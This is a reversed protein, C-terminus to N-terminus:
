YTEHIAKVQREHKTQLKYMGKDINAQLTKVSRESNDNAIQKVKKVIYKRILGM